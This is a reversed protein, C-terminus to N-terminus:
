RQTRWSSTRWADWEGARVRGARVAPEYLPHFAVGVVVKAVIQNEEVQRVLGDDSARADILARLRAALDETDDAMAPSEWAAAAVPAADGRRHARAGGVGGRARRGRGWAARRDGRPRPRRGRAARGVTFRLQARLDAVLHPWLSRVLSHDSPCKLASGTMRARPAAAGRGAGAM